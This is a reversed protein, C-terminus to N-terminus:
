IAGYIIVPLLSGEDDGSDTVIGLGTEVLKLQWRLGKQNYQPEGLVKVAIWDGTVNVNWEADPAIADSYTGLSNVLSSVPITVSYSMVDESDSLGFVPDSVKTTADYSILPRPLIENGNYRIRLKRMGVSEFFSDALAGTINAFDM